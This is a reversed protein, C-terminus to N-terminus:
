WGEDVRKGRSIKEGRRYAFDNPLLPLHHNRRSRHEDGSTISRSKGHGQDNIPESKATAQRDNIPRTNAALNANPIPIMQGGGRREEEGERTVQIQTAQISSRPKGWRSKQRGKAGDGTKGRPKGTRPRVALHDAIPNPCHQRRDGAPQMTPHM